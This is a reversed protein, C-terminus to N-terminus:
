VFSYEHLEVPILDNANKEEKPDEIQPSEEVPRGLFLNSFPLPDLVTDALCLEGFRHSFAIHQDNSLSQGRFVLISHELYAEHIRAFHEDDMPRSLDVGGVEAVFRGHVPTISVNMDEVEM